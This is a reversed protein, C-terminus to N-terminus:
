KNIEKNPVNDITSSATSEEKKKKISGMDGMVKEIDEETFNSLVAETIQPLAQELVLRPDVGLKSMLEWENKFKVDVSIHPLKVMEKKAVKAIDIKIM